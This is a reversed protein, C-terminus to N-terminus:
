KFIRLKHLNKLNKINKKFGLPDNKEDEITKYIRTPVKSTSYPKNYSKGYNHNDISMNEFKDLINSNNSLNSM